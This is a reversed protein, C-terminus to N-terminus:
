ANRLSRGQVLNELSRLAEHRGEPGSDDGLSTILASVQGDAEAWAYGYLMLLSVASHFRPLYDPDARVAHRLAEAVEATPIDRLAIAADMRASWSGGNHLQDILYAAPSGSRQDSPLTEEIRAIAQAVHPSGRGSDLMQRLQALARRSRKQGLAVPARWNDVALRNILEQEAREWEEPSLAHLAGTDLGDHWAMHADQSDDSLFSRYFADWAGSPGTM